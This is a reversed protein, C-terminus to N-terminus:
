LFLHTLLKNYGVSLSFLFLFLAPITVYIILQCLHCGLKKKKKKKLPHKHFASSPGSSKRLVKLVLLLTKNSAKMCLSKM